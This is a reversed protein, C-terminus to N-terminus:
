KHHRSIRKFSCYDTYVVGPFIFRLENQVNEAIYYVNTQIDLQVVVGHLHFCIAWIKKNARQLSKESELLGFM